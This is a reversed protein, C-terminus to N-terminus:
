YNEMEIGNSLENLVEIALKQHQANVFLHDHNYGSIVNCSIGKDSLAKSFVATFGVADLPSVVDLTIWAAEIEYDLDMADALGKRIIITAGEEEEKIFAIIDDLPVKKLSQVQCFVYVGKHLLPKMNKILEELNSENNM